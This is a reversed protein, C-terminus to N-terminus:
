GGTDPRVDRRHQEYAARVTDLDDASGAWATRLEDFRPAFVADAGDRGVLDGLTACGVALAEYAALRDGRLDALEALAVSAAVYTTPAVADLAHQRARGAAAAAEDPRGRELAVAVDLLDLEGALAPEDRVAQRAEDVAADAGDVGGQHLATAREVLARAAATRDGADRWSRAAEALDAGAGRVDGEQARLGARRRLLAATTRASGVSSRGATAIATDLARRAEAPRGLAAAVEVQEAAAALSAATDDGALRLATAAEQEAAALDGTLRLCSALAARCRSEELRRRTRHNRDAADRLQGIAEAFRGERVLRSALAVLQDAVPPATGDSRGTM